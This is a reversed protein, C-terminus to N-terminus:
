YYTIEELFFIENKLLNKFIQMTLLIIYNSAKQM